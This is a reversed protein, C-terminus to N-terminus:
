RCNGRGKTTQRFGNSLSIENSLCEYVQGEEELISQGVFRDNLQLEANGKWETDVFAVGDQYKNLIKEAIEEIVSPSEKLTIFM